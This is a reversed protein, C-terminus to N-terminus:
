RNKSKYAWLNESRKNFMTNSIQQCKTLVELYQSASRSQADHFAEIKTIYKAMNGVGVGFGFNSLSLPKVRKKGESLHCTQKSSISTSSSFFAFCRVLVSAHNYLRQAIRQHSLPLFYSSVSLWSVSNRHGSDQQELEKGCGEAEAQVASWLCSYLAQNCPDILTAPRTGDENFLGKSASTWCFSKEVHRSHTQVGKHGVVPKQIVPRRRSFPLANQPSQMELHALRALSEQYWEMRQAAPWKCLHPLEAPKAERNVPAFAKCRWPVSEESTQERTAPSWRALPQSQKLELISPSPSYIINTKHTMSHTSMSKIPFCEMDSASQSLDNPRAPLAVPSKNSPANDQSTDCRPCPKEAEDNGESGSFWPKVTLHPSLM